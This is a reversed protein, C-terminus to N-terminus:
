DLPLYFLADAPIFGPVAANFRVLAPLFSAHMIKRDSRYPKCVVEGDMPYCFWPPSVFGDRFLCERYAFDFMSSPWLFTFERQAADEVYEEFPVPDFRGPTKEASLDMRVVPAPVNVKVTFGRKSYFRQLDQTVPFLLLFPAMESAKSLLLTSYGKRQQMPHTAVGYVYVGQLIRKGKHHLALPFLTLFSMGDPHYLVTGLTLCYAIVFEAYGPTENFAASWIDRLATKDRDNAKRIV